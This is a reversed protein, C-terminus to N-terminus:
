ILALQFACMNCTCVSVYAVSSLFCLQSLFVGGRHGCPAGSGRRPENTPCVYVLISCSSLAAAPRAAEAAAAGRGCDSGRLGRLPVPRSPERLVTAPELWGACFAACPQPPPPVHAAAASTVALTVLPCAHMSLSLACWMSAVSVSTFLFARSPPPRCRCSISSWGQCWTSM